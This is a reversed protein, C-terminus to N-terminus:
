GKEGGGPQGWKTKPAVLSDWGSEVGEPRRSKTRPVVLSDWVERLGERDGGKQKLHSWQATDGRVVEM